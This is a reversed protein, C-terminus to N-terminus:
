EERTGRLIHLIRIATWIVQSGDSSGIRRVVDAREANREGGELRPLRKVRVVGAGDDDRGARVDGAINIQDLRRLDLGAMIDVDAEDALVVVRRVDRADGGAVVDAALEREARGEVAVDIEVA